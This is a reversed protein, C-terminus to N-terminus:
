KVGSDSQNRLLELNEAPVLLALVRDELRVRAQPLPKHQLGFADRELFHGTLRLGDAWAQASGADARDGLFFSPLRLLRDKWEGAANASVARGTRPSVYALADTAGTAACRELNMGYGIERLLLEEWAIYEPLVASGEGLRTILRLLDGFVRPHAEREPLVGEAVACASSLIGLAFADDMALAAGPHVLEATFAGLQDSLRAMWHCQILNGPQWLAVNGRASGGKALGKHRGYSETLVSAVAGGEGYPRADLVIAPETWEVSM